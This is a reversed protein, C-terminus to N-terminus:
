ELISEHIWAVVLKSAIKM